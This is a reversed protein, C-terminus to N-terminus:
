PGSSVLDFEDGSNAISDANTDVWQYVYWTKTFTSLSPGIVAPVYYGAAQTGSGNIGEASFCLTGSQPEVALQIYFYDRHAGLDANMVSVVNTGTARVVIQATTGDTQLYVPSIPATLEIYNVGRQGYSGGGAIFTNGVGTTPRGTIPDTVGGADQGLQAITPASLCHSVLTAGLSIGAENDETYPDLVVTGRPNKCVNALTAPDCGTGDCFTGSSCSRGCQGCNAPDRTTDVCFGSCCAVGAADACPTQTDCPTGSAAEPASDLPADPLADSPADSGGDHAEDAADVGGEGADSTSAEVTADVEAASDQAADAENADDTAHDAPADVTSDGVTGSDASADGKTNDDGGGCQALAWLSSTALTCAAVTSWRARSTGTM